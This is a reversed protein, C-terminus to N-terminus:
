QPDFLNALYYFYNPFLDPKKFKLKYNLKNFYKQSYFKIKFFVM